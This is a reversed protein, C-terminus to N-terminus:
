DAPPSPMTASLLMVVTSCSLPWDTATLAPEVLWHSRAYTSLRCWRDSLSTLCISRVDPSAPAANAAPRTFTDTVHCGHSDRASVFGFPCTSTEVFCYGVIMVSWTANAGLKMLCCRSSTFANMAAYLSAIFSILFLGVLANAS